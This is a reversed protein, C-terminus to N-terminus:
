RETAKSGPLTDSVYVTGAKQGPAEFRRVLELGAPHAKVAQDIEDGDFAVVIAAHTAPAALAASYFERDSENITQRLPIRTFAVLNPYVSTEMLVIGGPRTALLARLTPPIEVEFTRRSEINKTGEVYTLPHDRLVAWANMAVAAYLAAAVFGTSSQKFERAVAIALQAVFALGLAFAPLIEMGYRTNYWSHPWWVPLFIPVSGFAISYAYFPVPLWLLLTWLFARRHTTLWAWATGLVALSLLFNGWAEPALDLEVCKIFFLFSVWPNHWGPHPPGSGPTATRTEIAAASYPGRAFDLWDGFVISNYAFWLLPAAVVAVSAIWFSRSRLTSHRLQVVGVSTWALVALIWGDYRTFVAAILVLAICRLLCAARPPDNNLAGRWEVLWVALWVMECLFLPETMATTQLYLLNPNLAFFLLAVVAASARLWHRALRYIGTCGAIYALASPIMGAIGNAWWAYVAVFPLLLLHPLPLWVSGLQSLGPRHSDIVRRAIHLHAVADGYNLMAGHRWSWLGALVSASLTSAVVMLWEKRSIPRRIPEETL